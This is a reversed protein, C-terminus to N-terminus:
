PRRSCREHRGHGSSRTGGADRGQRPGHHRLDAPGPRGGGREERRRERRPRDPWARLLPSLLRHARRSRAEGRERSPGPPGLRVPKKRVFVNPGGGDLRNVKIMDRDYYEIVGRFVTGDLMEQWNRSLATATIESYDADGYADIGGGMRDAAEAIQEGDLKETGRVLMQQLLNSIGANDPTETRTGMRVMLSYAVVPAEPNERVLVTLGNPLRTRTVTQAAGAAPLVLMVLAVLVPILRREIRM